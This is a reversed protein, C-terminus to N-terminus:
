RTATEDPQAPLAKPKVSGPPGPPQPSPAPPTAEPTNAAERHANQMDEMDDFSQTLQHRDKNNDSASAGRGPHAEDASDTEALRQQGPGACAGLLILFSLLPKM